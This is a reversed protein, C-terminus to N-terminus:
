QRTLAESFTQALRADLAAHPKDSRGYHLESLAAIGNFLVFVSGDEREYVFLKQCFADLGISLFEAMAVGGPAPGGFLLLTAGPLTIGRAEARARFDHEGFWITDGQALIADKLRQISEALGYPSALEIIGYDRSLTGVPATTASENVPTLVADLRADWGELADSSALGHRAMLFAADTTMVALAGAGDYSLVRFPLDLGSRIEASLIASDLDPDSFIQVRSAPMEIGAASALRAHDISIVPDLGAEAVATAVAEFAADVQQQMEEAHLPATALAVALTM